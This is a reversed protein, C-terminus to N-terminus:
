KEKPVKLELWGGLRKSKREDSTELQYSWFVLLPKGSVEAWQEHFRRALDIEGSVTEGARIVTAGPGPDDILGVSSVVENNGALSVPVVIMSYRNGWPLGSKYLTLDGNSENTVSVKLRAQEGIQSVTLQVPIAQEAESTIPALGLSLVLLCIRCSNM